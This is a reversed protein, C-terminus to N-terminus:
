GDSLDDILGLAFEKFAKNGKEEEVRVAERLDGKIEKAIEKLESKSVGFFPRAPVTDGVIHNYAKPIQESDDWGITITNDDQKIIDMLGLMDGTLKLNVDNKSKGFAKFESSKIYKESYKVSGLDFERGRGDDTFKMGVGNDTRDRIRDIILQGIYERLERRDSFDIGFVEDLEITQEVSKKTVKPASM